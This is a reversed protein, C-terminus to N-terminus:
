KISGYSKPKAKIRSLTEPTIGLFSALHKQPIKKNVEPHKAIFNQYRDQATCSQLVRGREELQFVFFLTVNDVFNKFAKNKQMLNMFRDYSIELLTADEVVEIGEISPTQTLYSHLSGIYSGEFDFWTTIEKEDVYFFNRTIGDLLISAQNCVDGIRLIIDGTKVKKTRILPLMEDIFSEVNSSFHSFFPTILQKDILMYCHYPLKNQKLLHICIYNSNLNQL